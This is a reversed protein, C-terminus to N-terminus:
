LTPYAPPFPRGTSASLPQAFSAAIGNFPKPRLGARWGHTNGVSGDHTPRDTEGNATMPRPRGSHGRWAALAIRTGPVHMATTGGVCPLMRGGHRAHAHSVSGFKQPRRLPRGRRAVCMGPRLGSRHRLRKASARVSSPPRDRRRSGAVRGTQKRPPRQAAIATTCVLAALGSGGRCGVLKCVNASGLAKTNVRSRGISYM